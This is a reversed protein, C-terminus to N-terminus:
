VSRGRDSIAKTVNDWIEPPCIYSHWRSIDLNTPHNAKNHSWSWVQDRDSHWAIEVTQPLPNKVFKRIEIGHDFDKKGRLGTKEKFTIITVEKSRFAAMLSMKFQSKYSKCTIEFQNYLREYEQKTPSVKCAYYDAFTEIFGDVLVKDFEDGEGFDKDLLGEKISKLKRKRKTNPIDGSGPTTDTPPAPNGAGATNGPTACGGDCELFKDLSRM